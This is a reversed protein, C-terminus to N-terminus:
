RTPFALTHYPRGNFTFDDVIVLGLKRTHADLSRENWPNIMTIGIAFQPAFAERVADFLLPLLGKGRRSVDICVPGYQFTNETTIREGQFPALDPFRTVMHRFFEWEQYLSWTGGFVYGVIADNDEAVFVHGEKRFREIQGPTYPTTVFGAAREHAPVSVFLNAEQLRLIGPIDETVTPRVQM